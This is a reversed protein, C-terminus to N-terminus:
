RWTRPALMAVSQSALRRVRGGRRPDCEFHAQDPLLLARLGPGWQRAPGSLCSYLYRAGNESQEIRSCAVDLVSSRSRAITDTAPEGISFYRGVRELVPVIAPGLGVADVLATLRASDLREDRSIAAVDLFGSMRADSRSASIAASVFLGEISLTSFTPGPSGADTAVRLGNRMLLPTLRRWREGFNLSQHLDIEIGDDTVFVQEKLFGTAGSGWRVETPLGAAAMVLQAAVFQAPLVLLDVDGSDRLRPNTHVTHATALGKILRVDIGADSLLDVAWQATAELAVVNLMSDHAMTAAGVRQLPTVPMGAEIAHWLLGIVRQDVAMSTLDNWAGADLVCSPREVDSGAVSPSAWAIVSRFLGDNM